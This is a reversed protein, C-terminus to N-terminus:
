PLAATVGFLRDFWRESAARREDILGAWESRAMDRNSWLEEAVIRADRGNGGGLHVVGDQGFNGLAGTLKVGTYDDVSLGLVPVGRSAAFVAPHYRSTIVLEADHALRAAATATSPVVSRSSRKMLGAVEQQIIADGAVAGPETSGFHPLFVIELGTFEAVSDLLEAMARVFEPRSYEGVHLSLSVLCYPAPSPRGPDPVDAHALFSADDVTRVLREPLVGLQLALAHSAGERVGVVAASRLLSAVAPSDEATINPGITQGTILLPKGALAALTGLTAREWIHMPWNSAVNGGGAIVVADSDDIARIVSHAPDHSPLEAASGDALRLISDARNRMRERADPGVFGFGLQDIAEIGYRTATDVPNGSMGTVHIGRDRAEGVLAEFMAEDGIHIMADTVGVDGIALVRM